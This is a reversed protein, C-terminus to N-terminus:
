LLRPVGAPIPYCGARPAVALPPACLDFKRVVAGTGSPSRCTLLEVADKAHEFADACSSSPRLAGFFAESFAMAASNECITEWCVVHPVGHERLKGGLGISKCGNLFVLELPGGQAPSHRGLMRAFVHPVVPKAKGREDVVLLTKDGAGCIQVDAHGMFLFARPPRASLSAQLEAVSRNRM